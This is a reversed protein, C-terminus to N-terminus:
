ALPGGSWNLKARLAGYFKDPSCGVLIAKEKQRTIKICDGTHLDEPIQGDVAMISSPSRSPLIKIKIVGHSSLVLPRASLSFSNVPTLILADIEPDVIPGGAAASYATSGTATSIVVGDSKFVGLSIDNYSIDMAIIQASAGAGVFIENLGSRTLRTQGNRIIEAQVLSREALESKGSLFTDLAKKWEGIEVSAIFGFEGLNVPFIPIGLPACGRAAFLVTGDGGLTIVFDSGAFPYESSFGNYLFIESRISLAELYTKIEEGLATSERKYTNVVIICKKEM